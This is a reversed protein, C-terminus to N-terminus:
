TIWSTIMRISLWLWGVWRSYWIWRGLGWHWSWSTHYCVDHQHSIPNLYIQFSLSKDKSSNYIIEMNYMYMTAVQKWQLDNTWILRLSLHKCYLLPWYFHQKMNTSGDNYPAQIRKTKQLVTECHLAFSPHFQLFFVQLVPVFCLVFMSCHVNCSTTPLSSSFMSLSCQLMHNTFYWSTCYLGVEIIQVQIIRVGRNDSCMTRIRHM